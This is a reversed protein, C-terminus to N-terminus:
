KGVLRECGLFVDEWLGVYTVARLIILRDKLRFFRIVQNDLLFFPQRAFSASEERGNRCGIM